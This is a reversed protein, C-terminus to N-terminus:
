ALEAVLKKLAALERKNLTFWEGRRRRKAYARHAAKEVQKSHEESGCRVKGILRLKKPSGTQLARLRAEPNKSRGIKVTAREGDFGLVFYVYM